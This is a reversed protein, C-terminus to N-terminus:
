RVFVTNCHLEEQLIRMTEAPTDHIGKFRSDAVALVENVLKACEWVTTSTTAKTFFAKIAEIKSYPRGVLDMMVQEMDATADFPVRVYYFPLVKSLPFIRVTPVVAEVVFVRGGIVLAVGVHDFTSRTFMRVINLQIGQLTTWSGGSWALVDGTKITSRVEQYNM